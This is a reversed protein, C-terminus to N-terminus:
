IRRRECDDYIANIEDMPDPYSLHAKENREWVESMSKSTKRDAWTTDIYSLGPFMRVAAVFDDVDYETKTVKRAYAEAYYTGGYGMIQFDRVFEERTM